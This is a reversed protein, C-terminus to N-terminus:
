FQFGLTDDLWSVSLGNTFHHDTRAFADNYFLLSFQDAQLTLTYLLIFWIKKM